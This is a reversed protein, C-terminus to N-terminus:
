ESFLFTLPIKLMDGPELHLKKITGVPLELAYQAPEKSPYRPLESDSKGYGPRMNEIWETVQLEPSFFVLDLPIKTNKMWFIMKRPYSYVFLMAENSKLKNCFMLGKMREAPTRALAINFKHNKLIAKVYPLHQPQDRNLLTYDNSLGSNQEDAVCSLTFFLSVFFVSIFINLKNM